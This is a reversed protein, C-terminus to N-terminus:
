INEFALSPWRITIVISDTEATWSHDIGPAWAVYDGPHELLVVGVSFDFRFRGEVLLAM